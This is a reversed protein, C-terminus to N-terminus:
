VAAKFKENQEDAYRVPIEITFTTGENPQSEVHIKGKHEQIVKRTIVLGLGTGRAGKTSYFKNFLKNKVEEPMGEGTDSVSMILSREDIKGAVTIRRVREEPQVNKCAALANSILNSLASHIGGPDLLCLRMQRDFQREIIISDSAARAEYLDCVEQLIAGPDCAAYEPIREKSAYLISKVLESVKGVNNKVMDWGVRIREEDGRRIGSDVVYVGGQLGTLINKVTHSMGAITEGLATLEEQLRKVETINTSMELVAKINGYDDYIPATSVIIYTNEGNRHWVEESTHSQGDLFTKEVPCNDCKKDVEKYIQYCKDGKNNTFDRQFQKNTQLINFDKDVVTLYCPANEFLYKYEEQQRALKMQLEKMRTVDVAMELVEIVSGNADFIPSTNVIVHIQKGNVLWTEESQHSLSDCFTKEVPCEKCRGSLGKYAVYCKQRRRDGFLNLFSSNVRSLRYERDVVTLYCPVEEFLTKYMERSKELAVTRNCIQRGMEDFARSLEAISDGGRLATLPTYEGSALKQAKKSLNKLPRSVLFIVGLGIMTSTTLFLVFGFTATRRAQTMLDNRLSQVPLNVELAGIVKQGPPHAHCSTTSCSPGNLLPNIVTLVHGSEVMEYQVGDTEEFVTLLRQMQDRGIPLPAGDEKEAAYSYHLRGNWDYINIRSFVSHQGIKQVIQTIAERDKTMMGNWLAAKIIESEKVAEEQKAKILHAEQIKLSYLTFVLTLLFVM